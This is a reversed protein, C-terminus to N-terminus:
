PVDLEVITGVSTRVARFARSGITDTVRRTFLACYEVQQTPFARQGIELSRNLHIAVVSLSRAQHLDRSALEDDMDLWASVESDSTASLIIDTDSKGTAKLLNLRRRHLRRSYTLRGASIVSFLIITFGCIPVGLEFYLSEFHHEKGIFILLFDAVRSVVYPIAVLACISLPFLAAMYLYKKQKKLFLWFRIPSQLKVGEGFDRCLYLITLLIMLVLNALLINFFLQGHVLSSFETVPVTKSRSTFSTAYRGVYGAFYMSPLLFFVIIWQFGGNYKMSPLVRDVSQTYRGSFGIFKLVSNLTRNPWLFIMAIANLSSFIPRLFNCRQLIYKTGIQAPLQEALAHLRLVDLANGTSLAERAVKKRLLEDLRPPCTSLYTCQRFALEEIEPLGRLLERTLLRRFISQPLLGGLKIVMFIDLHDGQLWRPFLFEYIAERLSLGADERRRKLGEQLIELIGTAEENEWEFYGVSLDTILTPPTSQQERSRRLLLTTAYEIIPKIVDLTQSQLLTVAYERLEPLTMLDAASVFGPNAAIYNAFLSEQYRRHSFTFRRDGPAATPVDNRGIKVDVLADILRNLDALSIGTSRISHFIEDVKPALSLRPDQAFAIAIKEAGRLLEPPTLSFKKFTYEPERCALRNIHSTVLQHDNTPVKGEDKVFRCLLTLFLPNNGLSSREAALHLSVLEIEKINLFSNKVLIHQLDKNLPLISFKHWPLASPGKYERSALVGRCAGMGDLFQRIAESYERVAASGTPAHLVAPIEDFSDFLFFWRGNEKNETWNEKVYATTDADGRRINELVFNKITDVNIISNPCELERLNLYLPISANANNSKKGREAMKKALHRLAVSKGSGPEGVLLVVKETSTDIAKILSSVRRLGSVKKKRWKNIRGSYYQGEAEVEAELDTFYQDNWNEAKAIYSLDADLVSCFQKRKRVMNKTEARDASFFGSEKATDILGSIAEAAATLSKIAFILVVSILAFLLIISFAIRWNSDTSSTAAIYNFVSTILDSLKESVDEESPSKSM